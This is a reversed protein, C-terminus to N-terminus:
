ADAPKVHVYIGGVAKMSVSPQHEVKHSPDFTLTFNKITKAIVVKMENMAFHQGICNRSGASFPLFQFPDMAKVNDPDFREPRFEFPEEWVASNHHLVWLYLTVVTGKPITHGDVSVDESLLREVSPVPSHLRLSEKICQSTFQLRSLEEWAVDTRGGMVQTVEEQVRRQHDPHRALDYLTWMAGCATTEHGAVLFTDVEDRIERDSLRNGNEDTASLLIDVFDEKKKKKLGSDPPCTELQERRRSIVAESWRHAVDCLKYFEQGESSWRFLFDSYMLPTLFRKGLIEQTRSIAKIYESVGGEMQCGSSYSFATQLIIDLTLKYMFQYLDVSRGDKSSERLRDMMVDVCSNNIDHYARLTDLHFAPTLLHRQRAWHDGNTTILGEGLWPVMMDYSTVLLDGGRPKPASSKIVQRLSDPHYLYVLPMFPGFWVRRFKKFRESYAVDYMLGAENFGPYSHLDGSWFRTDGPGRLRNYTQRFIVYRLLFRACIVCLVAVAVCVVLM